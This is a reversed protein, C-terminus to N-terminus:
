KRGRWTRPEASDLSRIFVIRIGGEIEIQEPAHTKEELVEFAAPQELPVFLHGAELALHQGFFRPFGRRFGTGTAGRTPAAATAFILPLKGAPFSRVAEDLNSLPRRRWRSVSIQEDDHIRTSNEIDKDGKREKKRKREKEREKKREKGRQDPALVAGSELTDNWQPCLAPTKKNAVENLEIVVRSIRKPGVSWRVPPSFVPKIRM